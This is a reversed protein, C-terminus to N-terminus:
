PRNHGLTEQLLIEKLLHVLECQSSFLVLALVKSKLFVHHCRENLETKGEVLEFLEDITQYILSLIITELKFIGDPIGIKLHADRLLRFSCPCISTFHHLHGSELQFAILSLVIQAILSLEIRLVDRSKDEALNLM